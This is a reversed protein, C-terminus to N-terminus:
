NQLNGISAHLSKGSLQNRTIDRGSSRVIIAEQKTRSRSPKQPPSRDRVGKGKKGKKSAKIPNTDDEIVDLMDNNLPM